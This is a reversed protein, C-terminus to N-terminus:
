THIPLHRARTLMGQKDIKRSETLICHINQRFRTLGNTIASVLGQPLKTVGEMQVGQANVQLEPVRMQISQQPRERM